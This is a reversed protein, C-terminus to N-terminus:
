LAQPPADIGTAAHPGACPPKDQPAGHRGLTVRNRRIESEAAPTAAM